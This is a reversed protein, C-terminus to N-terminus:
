QIVVNFVTSNSYTRVNDEDEAAPGEFAGGKDDDIYYNSPYWRLAIPSSDDPNVADDADIYMTGTVKINGLLQPVSYTAVQSPYSTNRTFFDPTDVKAGGFNLIVDDIETGNWEAIVIGGYPFGRQYQGTLEAKLTVTDGAALTENNSSDILNGGENFVDITLTGNQYLKTSVTQTGKCAIVIDSVDSYYGASTSANQWLVKLRDGPSATFTGADAITLAPNGNLSYRHTGGASVDTFANVSTLTVTTDEVACITGPVNSAPEDGVSLTSGGIKVQDDLFGLFGIQGPFAYGVVATVILVGAIWRTPMRVKKSGAFLAILVAIVGIIAIIAKYDMKAKGGKL